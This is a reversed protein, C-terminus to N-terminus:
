KRPGRPPTNGRTPAPRKRAASGAGPRPKGPAVRDKRPANTLTAPGKHPATAAARGKHQGKAAGDTKRPDSSAGKPVSRPAPRAPVGKRVPAREPAPAAKVPASMIYTSLTVVWAGVAFYFLFMMASLRTRLLVPM